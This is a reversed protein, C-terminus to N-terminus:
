TKSPSAKLAEIEERYPIKRHHEKQGKVYEVVDMYTHHSCTFASYSRSWGRWLPFVAYRRVWANSAKKITKVVNIIPTEPPLSLVIHVHEAMGNIAYVYGGLNKVIGGIYAYLDQERILTITRERWYTSLVIHYILQVHGM